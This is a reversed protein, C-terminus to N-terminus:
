EALWEDTLDILRSSPIGACAALDFVSFRERMEAAHLVAALFRSRDLGLDTYRHAAGARRLCDKIEDPSAASAAIAERVRDWLAPQEELRKVVAGLKAQKKMFPEQVADAFRGWFARDCATDPVAFCPKDLALLERYLAASLITAVGVQRGHFDHPHGDLMSMMDLTHSVLHEGGSAPSSTGAMSMAVGTYILADFLAKIASTEGAAVAEPRDRYLHEIDDILGACLPCYYEDLLLRNLQWDTGSVSKALIDGLGAATMEYPASKLMEPSSLVALPGRGHLLTKVGKIAPAINDSSYGNMSAATAIVVYPTNRDFALWKTLDSIVGSGIGVYVDAPSVANELWARTHDDCIPPEGGERDPVILSALSYGAKALVEGCKEGAVAFTRRDSILHARRGPGTETCCDGLQDVAEPNCLAHRLRITHTKGCEDCVFTSNLYQALDRM